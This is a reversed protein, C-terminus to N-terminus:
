MQQCQVNQGGPMGHGGGSEDEDYAEGGAQMNVKNANFSTVPDMDAAVHVEADDESVMPVNLPPPLLGRLKQQTAPELKDPFEITLM